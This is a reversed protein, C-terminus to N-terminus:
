ASRRPPPSDLESCQGTPIRSVFAIVGDGAPPDVPAHDTLVVAIAAGAADAHGPMNRIRPQDPCAYPDAALDDFASPGTETAWDPLVLHGMAVHLELADVSMGHQAAFAAMGDSAETPLGALPDDFLSHVGAADACTSPFLLLGALLVPALWFLYRQSRGVM